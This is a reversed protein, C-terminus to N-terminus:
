VRRRSQPPRRATSKRDRILGRLAKNVARENPFEKAVEPELVVVNAAEWYRQTYKGRVLPGLDSRKYEPKMDDVPKRSVKKM